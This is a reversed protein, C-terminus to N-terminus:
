GDHAVRDSIQQLCARAAAIFPAVAQDPTCICCLGDDPDSHSRLYIRTQGALAMVVSGGESLPLLMVAEACLQDLMEQSQAASTVNVLPMQASLDVLVVAGCGAWDTHLHQLSQQITM